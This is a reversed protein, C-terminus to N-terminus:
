YWPMEEQVKALIEPYDEIYRFQGAYVSWNTASSYAAIGDSGDAMEKPVYIYGTGAEIPTGVFNNTTACPLVAFRNPLILTDLVTCNKFINNSLGNDGKPLMVIKLATCGEFTNYSLGRVSQFVVSELSTCGAVVNQQVSDVGTWLPISIHKLTAMSEFAGLVRLKKLRIDAFETLDGTLFLDEVTQEGLIDITNIFDNM